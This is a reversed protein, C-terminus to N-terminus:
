GKKEIDSLRNLVPQDTANAPPTLDCFYGGVVQEDRGAIHMIRINNTIAPSAERAVAYGAVGLAFETLKARVHESKGEDLLHNLVVSAKLKAADVNESMKKELLIRIEHRKLGRSLAEPTMGVREACAKQTRVAGSALLDVAQHWRKSVRRKPRPKAAETTTAIAQSNMRSAQTSHCFLVLARLRDPQRSATVAVARLSGCASRLTRLPSQPHARPAFCERRERYLTTESTESTLIGALHSVLRGINRNTETQKAGNMTAVGM